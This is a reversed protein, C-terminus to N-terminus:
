INLILYKNLNPYTLFRKFNHIFKKKKKFKNLELYKKVTTLIENETNNIITIGKPTNQWLEDLGLQFIKMSNIKKKNLYFKKFLCVSNDHKLKFEKHIVLDTLIMPKEFINFLHYAGGISGFYLDSFYTFELELKNIDEPNLTILNEISYIKQNSNNLIFYDKNILYKISKIYNKFNSNRLSANKLSRINFFCIKKDLPINYKKRFNILKIKKKIVSNFQKNNLKKNNLLLNQFRLETSSIIDNNFNKQKPFRIKSVSNYASLSIFDFYTLPVFLFFLFNNKYIRCYKELLKEVSLNKQLYIPSFIILNKDLNKKIIVEIDEIYQGFSSVDVRAIRIRLFYFIIALPLYFYSCFKYFIDITLFVASFKNLKFNSSFIFKIINIFNLKLSYNKGHLYGSSNSLLKHVLFRNM